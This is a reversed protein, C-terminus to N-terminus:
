EYRLAVMPDIRAARRAPLYSALLAVVTLIFSVLILTVPDTPTVDYLFSALVRTLAVAGVVGVVVGILILKCGRGLVAQLVDARRAGLAMRIGIDRTQRTTTYQLLAYIGITALALAIGAFIGLLTMVFRRYALMGSLKEEMPAIESIVKDKELESVVERIAPALRMPDGDTRVLVATWQEYKTVRTYVTGVVPGPTDFSRITDVVGVITHTKQESSDGTLFTQGLPDSDPFCERALTEDIVITDSDLDDFAQHQGSQICEIEGQWGAAPGPQEPGQHRWLRLLFSAYEIPDSM